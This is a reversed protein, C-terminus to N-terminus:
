VGKSQVPVVTQGQYRGTLPYNKVPLQTSIFVLQGIKAGIPIQIPCDLMNMIPLTLTGNFGPDVWAGNPVSIFLRSLSSKPLFIASLNDPLNLVETTTILVKQFPELNLLDTNHLTGLTNPPDTISITNHKDLFLRYHGSFTVDYSAPNVLRTDFPQIIEKNELLFADNKVM